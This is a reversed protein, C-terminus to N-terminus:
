RRSLQRRASETLLPYANVPRLGSYWSKDPGLEFIAFHLHPANPDANGTAGVYGIVDGKKVLLGERLGPAYRDLHAYYYIYKESSDMQYITLGGRESTFLKRVLGNDVALVPTGKPTMIDTAEHRRDGGRAENFTDHIDKVPVNAIPLALKRDKLPGADATAADPAVGENAPGTSPTLTNAPPEAPVPAPGAGQGTDVAPPTTVRDAPPTIESSAAPAQVARSRSSEYVAPMSQRGFYYGISGAV